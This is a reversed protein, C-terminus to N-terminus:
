PPPRHRITSQRDLRSLWRFRPTALGNNRRPIIKNQTLLKGGNSRRVRQGQTNRYLLLAARSIWSDWNALRRRAAPMWFCDLCPAWTTVVLKNDALHAKNTFAQFRRLQRLGINRFTVRISFIAARDAGKSPLRPPCTEVWSCCMNM